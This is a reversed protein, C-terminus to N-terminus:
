AAVVVVTVDWGDWGDFAPLKTVKVAVTVLSAPVGVPVTVNLSPPVEMPVPVNDPPSAVNLVDVSVTPTCEMVACYPPSVFKETDVDEGM